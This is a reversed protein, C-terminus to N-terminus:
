NELNTDLSFSERYISEASDSTGIIVTFYGVIGNDEMISKVEAVNDIYSGHDLKEEELYVQFQNDAFIKGRLTDEVSMDEGFDRVLFEWFSAKVRICPLGAKNIMDKIMQEAPEAIMVGYYNDLMPFESKDGQPYVHLESFQESNGEEQIYFVTYDRTDTTKECSIIVLNKSPYKERLYAEGARMQDLIEKQWDELKGQEVADKNFSVRKLIIKEHETMETVGKNKDENSANNNIQDLGSAPNNHGTWSCSALLCTLLLITILRKM